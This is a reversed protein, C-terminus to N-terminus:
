LSTSPLVWCFSCVNIVKSTLSNRGTGLLRRATASSVVQSRTGVDGLLVAVNDDAPFLGGEVM